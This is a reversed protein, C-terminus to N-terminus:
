ARHLIEAKLLCEGYERKPDSDWVIGGGVGYEAENKSNDFLITRIAVNFQSRRHPSIFGISGTYIGRPSTELNRIIETVRSKPAGTVSAPPFLARIIETPGAKTRGSVTSTMQWVTQYKEVSFLRDVRVSGPKAMRGLDNRVMDVIMLNEAREKESRWLNRALTKDLKLSGARPATGKMPRSMIQTGQTSFFLEPSSSLITFDKVDIIAGFPATEIASPAILKWPHPAKNRLRFSFNVQYCDGAAIHRKIKYFALAYNKQTLIPKWQLGAGPEFLYKPFQSIAAKRFLGFWILPFKSNPHACFSPDFAPAAEYSLFGVAFLRKKVVENEVEKLLPVVERVKYTKLEKVPHIFKLWTNTKNDKLYIKSEV